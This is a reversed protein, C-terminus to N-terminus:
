ILWELNDWGTGKTKGLLCLDREKKNIIIWGHKWKLKKLRWCNPNLGFEKLQEILNKNKKM